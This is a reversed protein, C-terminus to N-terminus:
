PIICYIIPHMAIYVFLPTPTCLGLRFCSMCCAWYMMRAHIACPGIVLVRIPLFGSYLSDLAGGGETHTDSAVLFFTWVPGSSLSYQLLFGRPSFTRTSHLHRSMFCEFLTPLLESESLTIISRLISRANINCPILQSICQMPTTMSSSPPASSLSMYSMFFSDFGLLRLSLMLFVETSLRLVPILSQINGNPPGLFWTIVLFSETDQLPVDPTLAVLGILM